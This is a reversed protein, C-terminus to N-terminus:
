RVFDVGKSINAQDASVESRSDKIKHWRWLIWVLSAFMLVPPILLVLIGFRLAHITQTGGAATTTYCGACGQAFSQQVPLLIATVVLLWCIKTLFGHLCCELGFWRWLNKPSHCAEPHCLSTSTVGTSTGFLRTSLIKM